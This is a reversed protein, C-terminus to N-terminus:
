NHLTGDTNRREFYRKCARTRGARIDQWYSSSRKKCLGKRKQTQKYNECNECRNDELDYAVVENIRDILLSAMKNDIENQLDARLAKNILMSEATTIRISHKM